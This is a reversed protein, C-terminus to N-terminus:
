DQLSAVLNSHRERRLVCAMVSTLAIPVRRQPQARRILLVRPFISDLKRQDACVRRIRRCNSIFDGKADKKSKKRIREEDEATARSVFRSRKTTNSSLRDNTVLSQVIERIQFSVNIKARAYLCLIWLIKRSRTLTRLNIVILWSKKRGNIFTINELTRATSILYNINTYVFLSLRVILIILVTEFINRLKCRKSSQGLKSFLM